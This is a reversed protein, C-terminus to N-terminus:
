VRLQAIRLRGGLWTGSVAVIMLGIRYWAPAKEAGEMFFNTVSMILVLGVLANLHHSPSRPALRGTVWGGGLASGLGVALIVLLSLTGPTVEPETGFQDPAIAGLTMFLAMTVLVMVAYGAIVCLFSKKTLTEQLRTLSWRPWTPNLPRM